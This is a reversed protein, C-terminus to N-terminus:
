KEGPISWDYATIKGDRLGDWYAIRDYGLVGIARALLISKEDLHFKRLKSKSDLSPDYIVINNCLRKYFDAGERSFIAFPNMEMPTMNHKKWCEVAATLYGAIYHPYFCVEDKDERDSECTYGIRWIDHEVVGKEPQGLEDALVKPELSWIIARRETIGSLPFHVLKFKYRSAKETRSPVECVIEGGYKKAKESNTYKMNAEIGNTLSHAYSVLREAEPCWVFPIIRKRKDRGQVPMFSYGVFNIEEERRGELERAFDRTRIALPIEECAYAEQQTEPQSLAILDGHKYCRRSAAAGDAHNWFFRGPTIRARLEIAECAPNLSFVREVLGRANYARKVSPLAIIGTKSRERFFEKRAM